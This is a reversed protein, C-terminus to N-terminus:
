NKEIKIGARKIKNYCNFQLAKEKEDYYDPLKKMLKYTPYNWQEYEEKTLVGRIKFDTIWDNIAYYACGILLFAVLLGLLIGCIICLFAAVTPVIASAIVLSIIIICALTCLIKKIQMNTM